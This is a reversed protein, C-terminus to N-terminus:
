NCGLGVKEVKGIDINLEESKIKRERNKRERSVYAHTSM